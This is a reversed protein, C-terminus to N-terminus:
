QQSGLNKIKDRYEDINKRTLVVLQRKNIHKNTFPDTPKEKLISLWTNYDLIYGDPSMAPVRIESKTVFDIEGPLPNKAAKKEYWSLEPQKAKESADKRNRTGGKRICRLKGDADKVYGPDDIEGQLVLKRYFNACQYGVRGPIAQSFIGWQPQESVDMEAVRALFLKKEEASWPGNNQKEGPPLNRYFFTNPNSMGLLYSSQHIDSWREWDKINVEKPCTRFVTPGSRRKHKKHSSYVQVPGSETTVVSPESDPEFESDFDSDSLEITTHKQLPAAKGKSKLMSTKEDVQRKVEALFSNNTIQFVMEEPDGYSNTFAIYIELPTARPWNKRIMPLSRNIRDITRQIMDRKRQRQAAEIEADGVSPDFDYYKFIQDITIPDVIPDSDSSPANNTTSVATRRDTSVEM